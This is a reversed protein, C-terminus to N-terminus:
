MSRMMATFLLLFLNRTICLCLFILALFWCELLAIVFLLDRFFLEGELLIMLSFLIKLSLWDHFIAICDLLIEYLLINTQFLALLFLAM